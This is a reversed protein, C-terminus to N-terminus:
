KCVAVVIANWTTEDAPRDFEPFGRMARVEFGSDTAMSEIDASSFFRM